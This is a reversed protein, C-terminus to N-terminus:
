ASYIQINMREIDITVLMNSDENMGFLSIRGVSISVYNRPGLYGFCIM